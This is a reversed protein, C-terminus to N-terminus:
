KSPPARSDYYYSMPSSIEIDPTRIIVCSKSVSNKREVQNRGIHGTKTGNRTLFYKQLGNKGIRKRCYLIMTRQAATLHKNEWQTQVLWTIFRKQQTILSDSPLMTFNFCFVCLANGKKLTRPIRIHTRSNTEFKCELISALCKPSNFSLYITTTFPELKHSLPHDSVEAVCTIRRTVEILVGSKQM